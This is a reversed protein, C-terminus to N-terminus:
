KAESAAELVAERVAETRERCRELYAEVALATREGAEQDQVIGDLSVKYPVTDGESREMTLGNPIHHRMRFSKNTLKSLKRALWQALGVEDLSAGDFDFFPFETHARDLADIVGEEGERVQGMRKALEYMNNLLVGSNPKRMLKRGLVLWYIGFDVQENLKTFDFSEAKGEAVFKILRYMGRNKIVREGQYYFFESGYLGRDEAMIKLRGIQAAIEAQDSFILKDGTLLCGNLNLDRSAFYQQYDVSEVFEVGEADVGIALADAMVEKENGHAVAIVDFDNPPLEAEITAQRAGALIKLLVRPAGGKHAIAQTSPLPIPYWEDRTESYVSICRVPQELEIEGHGTKIVKEETIKLRGPRQEVLSELSVKTVTFVEGVEAEPSLKHILGAIGHIVVTARDAREEDTEAEAEMERNLVDYVESLVETLYQQVEPSYQRMSRETRKLHRVIRFWWREPPSERLIDNIPQLLGDFEERVQQKRREAQPKVAM